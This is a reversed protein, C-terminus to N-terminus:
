RRRTHYLGIGVADWVNHQYRKAPLEVRALEEESLKQQTRRNKIDKPVTGGWQRPLYTTIRDQDGILAGLAGAVLVLPVLDNPDGKLKNQTYIQPIEIVWLANEIVEQPYRRSLEDIIVVATGLWDKGRALWASSLEGDEFVAVGAMKKGPDVNVIMRREGM